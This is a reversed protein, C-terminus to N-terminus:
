PNNKLTSVIEALLRNTEKQLDRMETNRKRMKDLIMFFALVPALIFLILVISFPDFGLTGM